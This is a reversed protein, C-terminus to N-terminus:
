LTARASVQTGLQSKNGSKGNVDLAVEYARKREKSALEKRMAVVQPDEAGASWTTAVKEVQTSLQGDAGAIIIGNGDSSVTGQLTTGSALRVNIPADTTFGTVESQTVVIDGAFDTSVHIKGNEIKTVQGVIRAGNKTVIVDAMATATTLATALALSCVVNIFKQLNM